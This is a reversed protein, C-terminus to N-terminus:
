AKDARSIAQDDSYSGSSYRDSLKAINNNLITERTAGIAQRFGELYFEIDGLEELINERDLPKNYIAWKKVADLLEGAEGSIGVVMHLIHAKSPSMEKAIKDGPKVLSAVFDPYNTMTIDGKDATARIAILDTHTM